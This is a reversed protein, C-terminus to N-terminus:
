APATKNCFYAVKFNKSIQWGFRKFSLYDLLFITFITVNWARKRSFFILNLSRFDISLCTLWELFTNWLQNWSFFTLLNIECLFFYYKYLFNVTGLLIKEDFWNPNSDKTSFTLKVSSKCSFAPPLLIGHNWMTSVVCKKWFNRSLLTKVLSTVLSSIERFCM